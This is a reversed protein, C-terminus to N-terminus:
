YCLYKTLLRHKEYNEEMFGMLAYIKDKFLEEQEMSEILWQLSRTFQYFVAKGILEEKTEFYEYATGKGIGAKKTIDSGKLSHVETGEEILENVADYMAIVKPSHLQLSNEIKACEM